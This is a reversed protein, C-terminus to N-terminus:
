EDFTDKYAINLIETAAYIEAQKLKANLGIIIGLKELKKIDSGATPSSKNTWLMVLPRTFYPNKFLETIIILLRSSEEKASVIDRYHDRLAILEDCRKTADKAQYITARLCFALWNEWHGKSSVDFLNQIYEDKYREFFASLYLWPKQLKCNQHIMLALLLRGVRGNGDLFPHITEFQYHAMFAIILPDINYDKNIWKEFADLCNMVENPPPPIFRRTSGIHVQTKRFDGPNKSNGRVGDLLEKHLTKILRLSVPLSELLGEGARLAANYNAVERFANVRDRSSKPVRPDMEFLLLEQPTAYTGELSSSTLAERKQLPQLLLDYNDMYRGVGDLRALEQKAEALLPWLTNPMEWGKPLPHPVFAYDESDHIPIKIKQLTGLSNKKFLARDM